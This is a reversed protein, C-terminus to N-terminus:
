SNFKLGACEFLTRDKLESQWKEHFKYYVISDDLYLEYNERECKNYEWTQLLTKDGSFVEITVDFEEPIKGPNVYKELLQYFWEKDNSPLSELYFMATTKEFTNDPILFPLNDKEIPSFKSFTTMTQPPAIDTGQFHVVIKQARQDDTPIIPKLKLPLTTSPNDVINWGRDKLKSAHDDQVCVASNLPPRTMLTFDEKCITEESNIGLKQQTLPSIKKMDENMGFRPNMQPMVLAKVGVCDIEFRDRFEYKMGPHFKIWVVNDNLYTAYTQGECKSYDGSYLITGDGTVLDVRVDFPEPTQGPNIYRKVFEYSGSAFKNPLSEGYFQVESFSQEKSSITGQNTITGRLSTYTLMQELEDRFSDKSSFKSVLATTKPTTIDGDSATVLYLIGREEYSPTIDPLEQLVNSQTEFNVSFGSCEFISKERIESVGKQGNITYFLLNNQLYNDFDVADCTTYKWSQVISGNGTVLDITADFPEPDKGLNVYESIFQYFEKKDKSPLSELSFGVSNIQHFAPSTSKEEILPEFKAFTYYTQPEIIEGGSLTLVFRNARNDTSPVFDVYDLTMSSTNEPSKQTGDLSFGDCEFIVRDHIETEFLKSFKRTILSDELFSKYDIVHCTDYNWVQLITKDGSLVEIDVEFTEPVAGLNVYRGILEYFWQNDTNPISEFYFKPKDGFPANPLMIQLEENTLPSFRTFSTISKKPSIDSGQFSAVFVQAREDNNPISIQELIETAPAISDSVHFDLGKCQYYSKDRIESGFTQKFKYLLLNNVFFTTYNTADCENYYWSQLVSNDATVLHIKVDFSEPAKTPSIYKQLFEYFREKDKSPLSELTFQPTKDIEYGPILIPLNSFQKVPGFKSFTFFTEETELDGGSFQVLFKTARDENKPVFSSMKIINEPNEQYQVEYDVHFGKCSFLSVERIESLFEGIFKLKGLNEDLIPYHEILDCERYEWTQLVYGNGTLVEIDVDYPFPDLGTNITQSVIEDYFWQKDKSPLSDLAFGEQVNDFYYPVTPYNNKQQELHEFKLFSTFTQPSEIEAGFFTVRIVQARNKEDVVVQQSVDQTSLFYAESIEQISSQETTKGPVLYPTLPREFFKLIKLGFDGESFYFPDGEVFAVSAPVQEDAFVNESLVAFIIPLILFFKLNM